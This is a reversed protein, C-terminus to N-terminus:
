GDLRARADDALREAAPPEGPGEWIAQGVALSVPALGGDGTPLPRGAVERELRWFVAERFGTAAPASMVLAFRRGDIRCVADTPRVARVIRRAIRVFHVPDGGDNLAASTVDLMVCCVAGGRQAAEAIHVALQAEFFAASGLGTDADTLWSEARIHRGRALTQGTELLMNQANAHSGAAFVRAMLEEQDFPKHLFDDVGHRFADVLADVGEKATSLIIATYRGQEEDRSRIRHTLDLGDMGPMLWDALVVDAPREALLELAEEASEAVRIDDYGAHELARLFFARGTRADDVLVLALGEHRLKDKRAM